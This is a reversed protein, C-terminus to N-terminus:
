KKHHFNVQLHNLKCGTKGPPMGVPGGFLPRPRTEQIRCSEDRKKAITHPLIKVLKKDIVKKPCKNKFISFLCVLNRSMSTLVDM